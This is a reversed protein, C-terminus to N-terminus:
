TSSTTTLSPKCAQGITRRRCMDLCMDMCMDVCLLGTTRRRVHEHVPAPPLKHMHGYAISVCTMCLHNPTTTKPIGPELSPHARRPVQRLRLDTRPRPVLVPQCPDQLAFPHPLPSLSQRATHTHHSRIIVPYLLPTCHQRVTSAYLATCTALHMVPSLVAQLDNQLDVCAHISM